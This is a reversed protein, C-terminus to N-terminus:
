ATMLSIASMDIRPDLRLEDPPLRLAHYLGRASYLVVMCLGFVLVCLRQWRDRNALRVLFLAAVLALGAMLFHSASSVPDRLFDLASESPCQRGDAPRPRRSSAFAPGPGTRRGPHIM